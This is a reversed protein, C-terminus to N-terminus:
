RSWTLQVGTLVGPDVNVVDTRGGAFKASQFFKRNFIYGTSFDLVFGRGLLRAIGLKVQQDFVYFRESSELRQALWYTQNDVQYDAYLTWHESLKQLAQVRVNTLPVYSALFTFKETPQYAISFPIGLNAQFQASPRWVYAIGPVPFPIQATPSYLLSFNWADRPGKPVNIFLATSLTMNRLGSFPEDSASGVNLMGGAQWGNSLERFHLAGLGVQWLQDPMPLQSDPLIASSGIELRSVNATALWIGEDSMALPFAASLQEGNMTLKGPQGVVNQAPIWFMQSSVPPRRRGGLPGGLDRKLGPPPPLSLEDEDTSLTEAEAKAWEDSGQRDGDDVAPLREIGRPPALPGISPLPEIRSPPQAQAEIARGMTMLALLSAGLRIAVRRRWSSPTEHKGRPRDLCQGKLTM